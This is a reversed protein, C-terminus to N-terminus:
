IKSFIVTCYVYMDTYKDNNKKLRFHGKIEKIQYLWFIMANPISVFYFLDTFTVNLPYM